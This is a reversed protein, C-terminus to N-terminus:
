RDAEERACVVVDWGGRQDHRGTRQAAVKKTPSAARFAAADIRTRARSRRIGGGSERSIRRSRLRTRVGSPGAATRRTLSGSRGALLNGSPSSPESRRNRSVTSTGAWSSARVMSAVSAESRPWVLGGSLTTTTASLQVSSVASIARRCPASTKVVTPLVSFFAPARFWASDCISSSISVRSTTMTMSASETM